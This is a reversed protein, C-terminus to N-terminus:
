LLPAPSKPLGLAMALTVHYSLLSTPILDKTKGRKGSYWSGSRENHKKKKKAFNSFLCVYIVLYDIFTKEQKSYASHPDMMPYLM